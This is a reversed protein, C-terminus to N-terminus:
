VYWTPGQLRVYCHYSNPAFRVTIGVGLTVPESENGSTKYQPNEVKVIKKARNVCWCASWDSGRQFTNQV